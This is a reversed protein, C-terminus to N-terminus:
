IWPINWLLNVKVPCYLIIKCVCYLWSRIVMKLFWYIMCMFEFNLHWVYCLYQKQHQKCHEHLGRSRIGDFTTPNSVITWHRNLCHLFIDHEILLQQFRNHFMLFCAPLFKKEVKIFCWFISLKEKNCRLAGLGEGLAAVNIKLVDYWM